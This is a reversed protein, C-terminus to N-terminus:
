EMAQEGPKHSDHAQVEPQDYLTYDVLFTAGVLLLRDQESAEKPFVLKYTDEARGKSTMHEIQGGGKGSITLGTPIVAKCCCCTCDGCMSACCDLDKKVEYAEEGKADYVTFSPFCTCCTTCDSQIKGVEKGGKEVVDIRHRCCSCCCTFYSCCLMAHTMNFLKEGKADEIEIEFDRRFFCRCQRCCCDLDEKATLIRNGQLDCVRYEKEGEPCCMKVRNHVEVVNVAEHNRLGINPFESM